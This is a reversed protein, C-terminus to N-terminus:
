RAKPNEEVRKMKVYGNILGKRAVYYVNHCRPQEEEIGSRELKASMELRRCSDDPPGQLQDKTSSQSVSFYSAICVSQILPWILLDVANVTMTSRAWTTKDNTGATVVFLILYLALVACGLIWIMWFLLTLFLQHCRQGDQKSHITVKDPIYENKMSLAVHELKRTTLYELFASIRGFIMGVLWSKLFVAAWRALPNPEDNLCDRSDNLLKAATTTVLLVEAYKVSARVCHQKLLSIRVVSALPHIAGFLMCVRRCFSCCGPAVLKARTESHVSCTRSTSEVLGHQEMGTLVAGLQSDKCVYQLTEEDLNCQSAYVKMAYLDLLSTVEEAEAEKGQKAPDAPRSYTFEHLKRALSRDWSISLCISLAGLALVVLVLDAPGGQLWNFKVAKEIDKWRFLMKADETCEWLRVEDSFVELAFKEVAAFLSLHLTKCVLPGEAGDKSVTSLGRTSWVGVRPDWLACRASNFTRGLTFVIPDVLDSTQMESDYGLASFGYRTIKVPPGALLSGLTNHNTRPSHLKASGKGELRRQVTRSIHLKARSESEFVHQNERSMVTVAVSGPAGRLVAAPLSVTVNGRDGPATVNLHVQSSQVAEKSILAVTTTGQSTKRTIKEPEMEDMWSEDSEDHCIKLLDIEDAESKRLAHQTETEM